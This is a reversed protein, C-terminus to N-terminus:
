IFSPLFFLPVDCVSLCVSLLLYVRFLASLSMSTLFVCLCVYLGVSFFLLPYLSSSCLVCLPGDHSYDLVMRYHRQM